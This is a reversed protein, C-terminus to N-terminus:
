RGRWGGRRRCPRCRYCAELRDAGCPEDSASRFVDHGGRALVLWLAAVPLAGLATFIFDALEVEGLGLADLAEKAAGTIAACGAGLAVALHPDFGAWTAGLAVLAAIASGALFHMIKDPAM